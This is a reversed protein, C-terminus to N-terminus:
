NRFLVTDNHSGRHLTLVALAYGPLTLTAERWPNFSGGGQVSIDQSRTSQNIFLLSITNHEGDQTAYVSVPGGIGQPPIQNKQLRAFLQMTNLLATAALGHQFFLPYPSDVGETSFFAAYEVQNSMLAGLTEAWWLAALNQPPPRDGPNTNIETVAIPLHEGITQLVLQHLSPVLTNWTQPNRLITQANGQGDRFPYLHFSVGNLLQFPLHHTREYVGVENLFGEMWLKGERDRPGGSASYQSLEPGFVQISPDRKHMALSYTIFARTYEDVTYTAGTDVDSLLDPENGISWYTVPHFPAQANAGVRQIDLQSNMYDVLSAARSARTALPVPIKDLPDSLQAQMYGEAGVQNLLSSFDNLQQTSLTHEEGWNGGPFRLLRVRASRLGQIVQPAYSMFGQGSPDKATTGQMPFVNSGLLYPSLPFSQALNLGLTPQNTIRVTLMLGIKQVNAATLVLSIILACTVLLLLSRQRSQHRKQRLGPLLTTPQSANDGEHLMSEGPIWGNPRLQEVYKDFFM